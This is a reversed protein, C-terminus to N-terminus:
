VTPGWGSYSFNANAKINKAFDSATKLAFM